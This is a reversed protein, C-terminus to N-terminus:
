DESGLSGMMVVLEQKVQNGQLVLNAKNDKNGQIVQNGMKVRYVMGELLELKDKNAQAVTKVGKVPSARPVRNDQSDQNGMAGLLVQLVLNDQYDMLEMKDLYVKNEESDLSVQNGMEEQIEQSDMMVPHEQAVTMEQTVRSDMKGMVGLQALPGMKVLNAQYVKIEKSAVSGQSAMEAPYEMMAQHEQKGPLVLNAMIVMLEKKGQHELNDKNGQSAMEVQHEQIVMMGM